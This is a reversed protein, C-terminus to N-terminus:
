AIKELLAEVRGRAMGSMSDTKDKLADICSGLEKSAKEKEHDSLNERDSWQSIIDLVESFAPLGATQKLYEGM